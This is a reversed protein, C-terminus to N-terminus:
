VYESMEDTLVAGTRAAYEDHTIEFKEVKSVDDFQGVVKYPDTNIM